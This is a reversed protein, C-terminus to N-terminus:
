NSIKQSVELTENKSNQGEWRLTELSGLGFNEVEHRWHPNCPDNRYICINDLVAVEM